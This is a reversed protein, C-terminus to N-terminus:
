EITPFWKSLGTFEDKKLQETVDTYINLTTSVDAHGLTDQIVKVNIGAECARTAFTHRLTHCTFHPLLLEANPNETLIQNNCDRTIRHIAKNLAAQSLPAGYRNLFIFDTYGDIQVQCIM